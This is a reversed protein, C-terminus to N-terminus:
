SQNLSNPTFAGTSCRINEWIFGAKLWFHAVFWKIHCMLESFFCVGDEKFARDLLIFLVLYCCCSVPQPGTIKFSLTVVCLPLSLSNHLALAARRWCMRTDWGSIKLFLAPEDKYGSRELPSSWLACHKICNLMCSVNKYNYCKLFLLNSTM